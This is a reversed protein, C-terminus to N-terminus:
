IWFSIIGGMMLLTILHFLTDIFYQKLKRGEFMFNIIATTGVFGLWTWFGAALGELFTEAGAYIMLHFLVFAMILESIFAIIYTKPTNTEKLEDKTKGILNMWANGFFVPSYWISGLVMAAVASLVIALYNIEVSNM